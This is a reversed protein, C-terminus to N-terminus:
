RVAPPAAAPAQNFVGAQGAPATPQGPAPQAMEWAEIKQLDFEHPCDQVGTLQDSWFNVGWKFDRYLAFRRWGKPFKQDAPIQCIALYKNQDHQPAFDDMKLANPTWRLRLGCCSPFVTYDLPLYKQAQGTLAPDLARAYTAEACSDLGKLDKVWVHIWHPYRDASYISGAPLTSYQLFSYNANPYCKGGLLRFGYEKLLAANKNYPAFSPFAAVVLGKGVRGLAEEIRRRAWQATYAFPKQPVHAYPSNAKKQIEYAALQVKYNHAAQRHQSPGWDQGWSVLAQVGESLKTISLPSLPGGNLGATLASQFEVGDVVLDTPIKDAVGM